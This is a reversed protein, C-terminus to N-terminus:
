IAHITSMLILSIFNNKYPNFFLNLFILILKFITLFLKKIM